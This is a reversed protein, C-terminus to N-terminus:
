KQQDLQARVAKYVVDMVHEALAHEADHYSCFGTITLEGNLTLTGNIQYNSDSTSLSLVIPVNCNFTVNKYLPIWLPGHKIHNISVTAPLCSDTGKEGQQYGLCYVMLPMHVPGPCSTDKRSVNVISVHNNWNSTLSSTINSSYLYLNLHGTGRLVIIVLFILFLILAIKRKLTMMAIYM